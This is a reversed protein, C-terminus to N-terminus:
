EDRDDEMMSATPTHISPLGSGVSPRALDPHSRMWDQVFWLQGCGGGIDDQGAPDFVRVDFGREVMLGAFTAALEVQRENRAPLGENRECIVSITANWIAPAFLAALRDADAPSSNEEGACYNLFPKRGTRARWDEGTAAIEGLDMKRLFPILADRRHDESEHISFQLGIAPIEQSIQMVWDWVIHPGITSILLAANPYKAHLARLAGQMGKPNLLPEGMSMFMIQLRDMAAPDVDTDAICRDVQAVIEDASFARVFHDGAGCFRCGVPCGSMTSCCIVTRTQYDPYRYLVAEAVGTASTFVYKRVNGEASDIVRTEDFM